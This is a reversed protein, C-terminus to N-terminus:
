LPEHRVFMLQKAAQRILVKSVLESPQRHVFLLGRRLEDRGEGLEIGSPEIEGFATRGQIDVASTHQAQGLSRRIAADLSCSRRRAEGLDEILQEVALQGDGVDFEECRHEGLLVM